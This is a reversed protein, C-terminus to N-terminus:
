QTKKFKDFKSGIPIVMVLPGPLGSDGKPGSPGPLGPRGVPGLPGSDGKLGPFGPPGEKGPLGSQGPFGPM